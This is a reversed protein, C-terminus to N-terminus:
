AVICVHQYVTSAARYGLCKYVSLIYHKSYIAIGVLLHRRDTMYLIPIGRMRKIGALAAAPNHVIVIHVLYGIRRYLCGSAAVFPPGTGIFAPVVARGPEVDLIM